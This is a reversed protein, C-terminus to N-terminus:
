RAFPQRADVTHNVLRGGAERVLLRYVFIGNEVCLTTRVIDGPMHAAAGASLAEVTALKERHVIPAADSWDPYCDTATASQAVVALLLSLIVIRMVIMIHVISIFPRCMPYEAAASGMMFPSACCALM